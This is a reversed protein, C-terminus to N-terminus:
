TMYLYYKFDKGRYGAKEKEPKISTTPIVLLINFIVTMNGIQSSVKLLEGNFILSKLSLKKM